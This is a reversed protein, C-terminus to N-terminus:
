KADHSLKKKYYDALTKENSDRVQMLEVQESPM